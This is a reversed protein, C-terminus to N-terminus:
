QVDEPNIVTFHYDILHEIEKINRSKSRNFQALIRITERDVDSEVNAELTTFQNEISPVNGNRLIVRGNGMDYGEAFTFGIVTTEDTDYIPVVADSPLIKEYQIEGVGIQHYMAPPNESNPDWMCAYDNVIANPGKASEYFFAVWLVTQDNIVATGSKGDFPYGTQSPGGAYGEANMGLGDEDYDINNSCSIPFIVMFLILLTIFTRKM